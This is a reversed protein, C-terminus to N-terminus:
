EAAENHEGVDAGRGNGIFAEEYEHVLGLYTKGLATPAWDWGGDKNTLRVLLGQSELLRHHVDSETDTM